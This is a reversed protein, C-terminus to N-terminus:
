FLADFRAKQEEMEKLDESYDRDEGARLSETMREVPALLPMLSLNALKGKLKHAYEFGNQFDKALIAEKLKPFDEDELIRNVFKLYLEEKGTCRKVGDDVDAGFERLGEITLM